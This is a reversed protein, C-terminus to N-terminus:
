TTATPSTFFRDQRNIVQFDELKNILLKHNSTFKTAVMHELGPEVPGDVSQQEAIGGHECDNQNQEVQVHQSSVMINSSTVTSFPERKQIKESAMNTVNAIINGLKRKNRVSKQIYVSAFINLNKKDAM